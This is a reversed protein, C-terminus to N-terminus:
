KEYCPIFKNKDKKPNYKTIEEYEIYNTDNNDKFWDGNKDKIQNIIDQESKYLKLLDLKKTLIKNELKNNSKSFVYFNKTINKVHDFILKHQPHGYEGIPNHTVIKDWKRSNIINKIDFKVSNDLKDPYDLIEWDNVNLEKMVKIFEVKRKKNNLNTLCVVKYENGYKILEAGGFILEDDPHAVIMLKKSTYDKYAKILNEASKSKVSPDPGHIFYIDKSKKDYMVDFGQDLYYSNVEKEKDKSYYNNWTIPLSLRKDEEWLICNAVREESFANLDIYDEISYLNLEKNWDLCKNFFKRSNRNYFYFGTAILVHHPNRYIKKIKCIESGYRENIRSDKYRRWQAIDEHYYKMFLPYDELTDLYKLSKDINEVVFADGDLWAYNEYNENFSDLSALFKAFFISYDKFFLNKYNGYQDIIDGSIKPKPRYDIRKNIVNPLKINPTCNFGYVILKYKSYKLLSHALVEIMPLYKEDGGTIWVFEKNKKKNLYDKVVNFVQNPLISKQCIHQKATNQHEPCWDWDGKDFVYDKHVWCNNCVSNNGLKTLNHTFEYGYPIFNNIMITHKNLAWNVWSLGSGLGIFLDAHFLYNYTDKWKLNGKNTINIGEFGEKSLNIVRYGIKQLNKALERWNEYPWEKLGATSRPGICVYKQKIPRKQIKHVIGYNVEKYPIDLIDTACQILPVTNVQTPHNDFNKWDDNDSKFWGLEFVAYANFNDGPKIFTIDKYEPLTEFWENHFTSVIVKCNYHKAFRVVQPAWAITDGVSKSEFNIKVVKNKLSYKHVIKNNVKIIWPINYKKNCKIWMNNGITGSHIVENTKSNIFEVFYKADNSGIVEVKPGLNFSIELKNEPINKLFNNLEKEAIKAANNWTFKKRILKSEELAKSKYQKYNTYVDRMKEKLIDFDAEYFQGDLDSQSFSSYEGRKADSMSKIPIPIGLGKAFELQGSCNSYISPTGCAMAEILPLNWGEARACSLFVHGKQLYKIYEERTPFHKVKVRPDNLKYHALRDETSNFKDKAFFNDISVILDVPEDSKFETLFAEIIEKTAKRYDWRGFIVFKFRGDDYEPLTALPNPKFINGDVAEPIVKVKDPDMGQEITCDRQWNSAVWIQDFTKLKDFFGQPQRTSEWVNYAITPGSYNQYYYHHNTESLIINVDHNVDNKYKSYIPHHTLVEKNEVNSWLSQEKLLKKDLNDIYPENNHPEDIHKGGWGKGVTFNRVKLNTLKSLERFFKRTHNAYGTTGIYSGFAFVNPKNKKM